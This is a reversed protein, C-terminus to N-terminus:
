SRGRAGVGCRRDAAGPLQPRHELLTDNARDPARTDLNILLTEEDAPDGSEVAQWVDRIVQGFTRGDVYEMAIYHLGDADGAEFIQVIGPHSLQAAATAEVHFRKVVKESEAAIAPLVKLAVTRNLKEHRASYVVGMGGRGLEGTIEYGKIKKLESM